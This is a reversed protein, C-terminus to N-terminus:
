PVYGKIKGTEENVLLWNGNEDCVAKYGEVYEGM